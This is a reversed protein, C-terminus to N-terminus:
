STLLNYQDIWYDCVEKPIEPDKNTDEYPLYGTIKRIDECFDAWLSTESGPALYREEERIISTLESLKM